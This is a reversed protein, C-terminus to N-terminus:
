LARRYASQQNIAELRAQLIANAEPLRAACTPPAMALADTEHMTEHM